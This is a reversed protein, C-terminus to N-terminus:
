NCLIDLNSEQQQFYWTWFLELDLNLSSACPLRNWARFLRELCIQTLHLLKEVQQTLNINGQTNEDRRPM